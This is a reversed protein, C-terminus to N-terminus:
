PPPCQPPNLVVLEAGQLICLAVLCCFLQAQERSTHQLLRLGRVPATCDKGHILGLGVVPDRQVEERLKQASEPTCGAMPPGISHMALLLRLILTRSAMPSDLCGVEPRTGPQGIAM